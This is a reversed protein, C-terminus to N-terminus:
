DDADHPETVANKFVDRGDLRRLVHSVGIRFGPTCLLYLSPSPFLTGTASFDPTHCGHVMMHKSVVNPLHQKHITFWVLVNNM